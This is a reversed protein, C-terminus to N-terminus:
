DKKSEINNFKDLAKKYEDESLLKMNKKNM